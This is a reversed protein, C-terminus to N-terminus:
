AAHKMCARLNTDIRRIHNVLWDGLERKISLVLDASPGEQDYRRRIAQFTEIFRAHARQNVAAVPCRHREMCDEEWSFHEQVYRALFDLIPRIESQGRGQSMAQLLSNIQRILEQHQRDVQADGSAMSEDWAFTQAGAIAAPAAIANVSRAAPAPRDVTRPPQSRGNRAPASPPAAPHQPGLAAPAPAAPAAAVNFNAVLGQLKQAMGALDQVSRTVDAVQGSMQRASAGVQHVAASNEESVSAISEISHTVETVSAAMQETAATNEEVVASVSDLSDVVRSTLESMTEAADRNRESIASVATVVGELAENASLMARTDERIDHAQESLAQTGAAIAAFAEGARDVLQVAAAVESGAQQMADVAEGAGTQVLRIMEGIEKTATASREALKRVEDAVVAFGKGHEGARAAEIAANLALLNTQAAIDDITEVIAGIQGSRKGLDRVRGALQETTARVRQMGAVTQSALNAGDAAATAARETQLGVQETAAAVRQLAQALSVRVQGARGMGESQEHASRRLSEVAASLQGMATSTQAVAQAQEQAGRAIGDIARRMQEMSGATQTITDAQQSTGQAVQQITLAIESALRGAQDAVGALSQSAGALTRSTTVTEAIVNFVASRLAAYHESLDQESSDVRVTALDLGISQLYDYFFADGVAQMDYNFVTFIANEARARFRPRHFYHRWLYKRVLRQYVAYSGLYWKQPLNIVNHRRGIRLRKEYYDVGFTGAGAAEQFIERFYEAQTKELRPRLAELSLGKSRAYAEFFERAPTLGFQVDYFERVLPEAVRDAWGVLPRLAAVVDPTLGILRRRHELNIENIRYQDCLQHM